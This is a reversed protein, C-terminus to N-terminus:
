VAKILFCCLMTQSRKFRRTKGTTLPCKLYFLPFDNGFNRKETRLDGRPREHGPKRDHEALTQRRASSEEVELHVDQEAHGHDRILHVDKIFVKDKASILKIIELYEIL